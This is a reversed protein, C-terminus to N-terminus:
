INFKELIKTEVGEMIAGHDHGKLHTCGHVFIFAFFNDYSRDFKPAERRTDQPSIYIEGENESLPFSLIDTAKDINRYQLNLKRIEAPPVIAITLEYETGLAADKIADFAVRPLTAKTTNILTVSSRM